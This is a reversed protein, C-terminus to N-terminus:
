DQVSSAVSRALLSFMGKAAMATVRRTGGARRHACCNPGTCIHPQRSEQGLFSSGLVTRAPTQAASTHASCVATSRSTYMELSRNTFMDTSSEFSM